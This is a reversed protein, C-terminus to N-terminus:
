LLYKKVKPMLEEYKSLTQDIVKDDHALSVCHAGANLIGYDATLSIWNKLDDTPDYHNIDKNTFSFVFRNNSGIIDLREEINNEKIIRLIGIRLKEGQTDLFSTVNKEKYINIVAKATALSLTEGAYTLSYFIENCKNMIEKRGVLASLPMGNAIGKAFTSLDPTIGILSQVSGQLCRFGSVIEDFILVINKEYTIERLFSFFEKPPYAERAPLPDIIICAIQNNYENILKIVSDPDNYTFRHTLDRVPGPVGGNMSTQGIYWDQWGHYGCFLIHDNGTYYRSLRVAASTVDNGNKGFRVKEASPIMEVLLASVEAELKSPLSFSIGKNLQHIIANNVEKNQYGLTVAGQALMYDIYQNQDIDYVYAGDCHSICYPTDNGNFFEIKSFTSAGALLHEFSDRIKNSNNYKNRL